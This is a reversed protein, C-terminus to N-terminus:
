NLTEPRRRDGRGRWVGKMANRKRTGGNLVFHARPDGGVMTGVALRGEDGRRHRNMLVCVIRVGKRTAAKGGGPGDTRGSQWGWRKVRQVVKVGRRIKESRVRGGNQVGLMEVVWAFAGRAGM